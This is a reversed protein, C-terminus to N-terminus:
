TAEKAFSLASSVLVSVTTLSRLQQNFYCTAWGIDDHMNPHLINAARLLSALIREESTLGQLGEGEIRMARM